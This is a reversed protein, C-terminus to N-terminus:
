RDRHPLDQVGGGGHAKAAPRFRGRHRTRAQVCVRSRLRLPVPHSARDPPAISSTGGERLASQYNRFLQHARRNCPDGYIQSVFYITAFDPSFQGALGRLTEADLPYRDWTELASAIVPDHRSNSREGALYNELYYKAVESDVTTRVRQGALEGEVRHAPIGACSALLFVLPLFM